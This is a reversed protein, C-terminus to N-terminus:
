SLTPTEEPRESLNVSIQYLASRLIALQEPSLHATAEAITQQAM